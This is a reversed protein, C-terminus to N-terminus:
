TNGRPAVLTVSDRITNVHIAEKVAPRASLVTLWKMVAPFASIDLDLEHWTRLWSFVAIDAITYTDGTLYPSNQLQKEVVGILRLSEKQYRMLAEENHNKTGHLFWWLQGMMPGVGGIQFHLWQQIQWREKLANSQLLPYKESLYTLIAGSEFLTIGTTHDVIAPIKGNPNIALFSPQHQEDASLDVFRREFPIGVEHLFLAVKLGNPTDATYFTIDPKKSVTM